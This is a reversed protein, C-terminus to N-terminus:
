SFDALDAPNHVASRNRKSRLTDLKNKVLENDDNPLPQVNPLPLKDGLTGM